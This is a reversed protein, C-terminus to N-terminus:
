GGPIPFSPGSPGPPPPNGCNNNVCGPVPRTGSGPSPHTGVPTPLRPDCPMSGSAPTRGLLGWPLNYGHGSDPGGERNERISKQYEYNSTYEHIGTQSWVFQFVDKLGPGPQLYIYGFLGNNSWSHDGGADISTSLLQFGSHYFQYLPVTGNEQRTELYFELQPSAWANSGDNMLSKITKCDTDLITRKSYYQGLKWVAVKESKAQGSMLTLVMLASACARWM